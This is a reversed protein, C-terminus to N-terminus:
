GNTGYSISAILQVDSKLNWPPDVGGDDIQGQMTVPTGLAWYTPGEGPVYNDTQVQVSDTKTDAFEYTAVPEPQSSNGRGDDNDGYEAYGNLDQSMAISTSDYNFGPPTQGINPGTWYWVPTITGLTECWDTTTDPFPFSNQSSPTDTFAPNDGATGGPWPAAVVGDGNYYDGHNFYYPGAWGGNVISFTVSGLGASVSCTGIGMLGNLEYNPGSTASVNASINVNEQFTSGVEVFYHTGSAQDNTNTSSDGVGDSATGPSTINSGSANSATGTAYAASQVELITSAPAPDNSNAPQWTAKLTLSATASANVTTPTGNATTSGGEGKAIAPVSVNGSGTVPLTLTAPAKPGASASGSGSVTLSWTGAIAPTGVAFLASIV